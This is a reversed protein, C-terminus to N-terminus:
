YRATAGAKFEEMNLRGDKNRDMFEFEIAAGSDKPVNFENKDIVGDKNLDYEHFKSIVAADYEKISIYGDNNKDAKEFADPQSFVNVTLILLFVFVTLITKMDYRELKVM